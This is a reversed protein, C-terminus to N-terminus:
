GTGTLRLLAGLTALAGVALWAALRRTLEDSPSDGALSPEGVMDTPPGAGLVRALPLTVIAVVAYVAHLGDRPGGTGALLILGVVGALAVLLPVAVVLWEIVARLPLGVPRDPRGVILRASALVLVGVASLAAIATLAEHVQAALGVLDM